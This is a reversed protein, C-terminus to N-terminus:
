PREGAVRTILKVSPRGSSAARGNIAAPEKEIDRRMAVQRPINASWYLVGARFENAASRIDGNFITIATFLSITALITRRIFIYKNFNM